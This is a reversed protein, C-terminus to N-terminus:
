DLYFDDKASFTILGDYGDVARFFSEIEENGTFEDLFNKLIVLQQGYLPIAECNYIDALIGSYENNIAEDYEEELIDLIQLTWFLAGEEDDVAKYDAYWDECFLDSMKFLEVADDLIHKDFSYHSTPLDTWGVCRYIGLEKGKYIVTAEFCEGREKSNKFEVGYLRAM